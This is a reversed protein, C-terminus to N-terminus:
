AKISFYFGNNHRCGVARNRVIQRYQLFGGSNGARGSVVGSRTGALQIAHPFARRATLAPRQHALWPDSPFLM